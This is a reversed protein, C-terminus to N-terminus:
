TVVDDYEDNLTRYPLIRLAQREVRYGRIGDYDVANEELLRLTEEEHGEPVYLFLKKHERGIPATESLARWRPVSEPAIDETSEVTGFERIEGNKKTIVISPYLVGQDTKVAYRKTEDNVITVHDDAWSEQDVFPFRTAAIIRTIRHRLRTPEVM